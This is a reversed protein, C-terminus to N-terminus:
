GQIYYYHFLSLSSSAYIISISACNYISRFLEGKNMLLQHVRMVFVGHVTIPRISGDKNKVSYGAGSRIVYYSNGIKGLYMVVHGKMYVPDGAKLQNLTNERDKISGIFKIYKGVAGEKQMSAERPIIITMNNYIDM